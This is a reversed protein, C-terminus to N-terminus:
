MYITYYFFLIKESTNPMDKITSVGTKSGVVAPFSILHPYDTGIRVLLEAIKKRPYPHPHSLRSFLQPVVCVWPSTPTESMHLQRRFIFLYSRNLFKLILGFM